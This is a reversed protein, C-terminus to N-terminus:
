MISKTNKKKKLCFVAYSIRMLSQLESTHEESRSMMAVPVGAPTPAPRSGCSNRHGPSTTSHSISFIPMSRLGTTATQPAGHRCSGDADPLDHRAGVDCHLGLNRRQEAGALGDRGLAESEVRRPHPHPLHGLFFEGRHVRVRVAAREFQGVGRDVDEAVGAEDRDHAHPLAIVM